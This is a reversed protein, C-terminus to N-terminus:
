KKGEYTNKIQNSEIIMKKKEIVIRYYRDEKRKEYKNMLLNGLVWKCLYTSSISFFQM